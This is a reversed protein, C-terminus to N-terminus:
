CLCSSLICITSVFYTNHLNKMFLYNDHTIVSIATNQTTRDGSTEFPLLVKHELNRVYSRFGGFLDWINISLFMNKLQDTYSFCVFLSM